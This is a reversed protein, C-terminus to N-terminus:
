INQRRETERQMTEKLESLNHRVAWLFAEMDDALETVGAYVDPVGLVQYYVMLIRSWRYFLNDKAGEMEGLLNGIQDSIPLTTEISEIAGRSGRLASLYNDRSRNKAPLLEYFDKREAPADVKDATRETPFEIVQESKQKPVEKPTHMAEVLIKRQEGQAQIVKELCAQTPKLKGALIDGRIGPLTEEAVDVGQSFREALRVSKESIGNQKAIRQSTTDDSIVQYNKGDSKVAESKRDGGNARKEISYQKGILYKKQAKTLNRRGLQNSCIWAIVADKSDFSLELTTYQVNPHAQAIHYRNHGDVIYGNWTKIPDYIIGVSVINSELRMREDWTLAPIYSEFLPDIKLEM